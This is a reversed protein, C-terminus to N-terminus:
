PQIEYKVTIQAGRPPVGDGHFEIAHSPDDYTWGNEADMAVDEDNVIVQITDPVANWTLTFVTIVGSATLGLQYLMDSWDSQCINGITGHVQYSAYAYRYGAAGSDCAPDGDAPTIISSIGVLDRNGHKAAVYQDVYDDVPHLFEESAYCADADYGDLAGEDSCDEEDSVFTILFNADDRLFGANPGSLMTDSVAAAAAELGKEKDSGSTGVAARTAFERLYDDEITLYPPDGRLKGRDPDDSDASTSLVGLHFKSNANELELMFDTFARILAEQEERMSNSNDIVFLLDVEDNPAQTFADIQVQNYVGAESSCAALMLTLPVAVRVSM